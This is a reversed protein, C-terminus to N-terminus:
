VMKDSTEVHAKKLFMKRMCVYMCVNCVYLIYKYIIYMYM